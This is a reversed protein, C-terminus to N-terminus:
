FRVFGEFNGIKSGKIICFKCKTYNQMYFLAPPSKQKGTPAVESKKRLEGAKLVQYIKKNVEWADNRYIKGEVVRGSSTEFTLIKKVADMMGHVDDYNYGTKKPKPEDKAPEKPAEAEQEAFETGSLIERRLREAMEERTEGDVERAMNGAIRKAVREVFEKGKKLDADDEAGKVINRARDYLDALEERIEAAEGEIGASKILADIDESTQQNAGEALSM